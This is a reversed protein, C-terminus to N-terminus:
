RRRGDNWSGCVSGSAGRVRECSKKRCRIFPAPSIPGWFRNQESTGPYRDCGTECVISSRSARVGQVLGISGDVVVFKNGAMFGSFPIPSSTEQSPCVEIPGSWITSVKGDFLQSVHTYQATDDGLIDVGEM